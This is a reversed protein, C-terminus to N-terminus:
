NSNHKIPNLLEIYQKIARKITEIKSGQETARTTVLGDEDPHGAAAVTTRQNAHNTADDATDRANRIVAAHAHAHQQGSAYANTSHEKTSTTPRCITQNRRKSLRSSEVDQLGTDSPVTRQHDHEQQETM